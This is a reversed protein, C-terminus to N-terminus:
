PNQVHVMSHVILLLLLEVHGYTLGPIASETSVWSSERCICLALRKHAEGPDVFVEELTVVM